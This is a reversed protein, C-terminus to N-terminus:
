EGTGAGSGAQGAEPAVGYKRSIKELLPNRYPYWACAPFYKVKADDTDEYAFVAKCNRLREADISHQEEFPLMAVRLIPRPRRSRIGSGGGNSRHVLKRWAVGILRSFMGLRWLRITRFLWPGATRIVVLRGRQRQWFRKPDLRDLKPDMKRALEAFEVAAQKFPKTLYHNMGRFCKGDSVLITMSECNPHVGALMLVESRPEKRFFSRAKKLAYSMGAPIFEVGGGPVSDRVIKEVDEMTTHVSVEFEGDRWNETLPIMGVDAILDRNDHVFQLLDAVYQDNFGRGITAIITQKRRSYKKLNELAQMKKDYAARNHRLKEYIEPSRGDFALRLPVRAECLQRCYGEDALRLGNTVVHPRLGQQRAAAVIELLDGRVTPEGGFLQVVPKPDMRGLEAFIKQFYALPPNFDFGM